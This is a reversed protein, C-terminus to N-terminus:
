NTRKQLKGAVLANNVSVHPVWVRVCEFGKVGILIWIRFDANTFASKHFIISTSYKFEFFDCLM